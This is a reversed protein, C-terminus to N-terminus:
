PKPIVKVEARLVFAPTKGSRMSGSLELGLKGTFKPDDSLDLVASAKMKQGPEVFESPTKVQFCECSSKTKTIEVAEAGHNTLTIEVEKREGQVVTGFDVFSPSVELLTAPSPTSTTTTASRTTSAPPNCGAVVLSATTLFLALQRM